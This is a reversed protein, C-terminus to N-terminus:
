RPRARNVWFSALDRALDLPAPPLQPDDDANWGYECRIFAAFFAAAAVPDRKLEEGEDM